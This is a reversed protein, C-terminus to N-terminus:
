VLFSWLGRRIGTAKLYTSSEWTGRRMMEYLLGATCRAGTAGLPHGLAIAGGNPNVKNMDLGLKNCCYTAQSAFAENIEFVDIEDLELGAKEVAVPIAAAPGVGMIAPEVGVVSFSRLVGLIPLGRKLAESRKMILCAAAGDSM